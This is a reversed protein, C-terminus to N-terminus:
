ADKGKRNALGFSYGLHEGFGTPFPPFILPNDTNRIADINKAVDEITWHERWVGKSEAIYARAVRGALSILMEGSLECSEHCLYAVTPAVLEPDMPPYQSTDLGEAMRTVAAPVIINSKVGDAAGEIAAVHSLGVLGAKSVSYPTVQQNGYLGGISSTLVIRGYGGKCMAAFAPQVVNFGGLLHVDVVARFTEQTMEKLLARRVNGASHILIDVQGYNDLASKVIAQGGEPTAVSDVCAVAQGGASKIENVVEQAASADGGEGALSSGLDNVVVKAGRSALLLAYSRGLGRGGGTVIAVRNDFRLESM